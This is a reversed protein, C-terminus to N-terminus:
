RLPADSINRSIFKKLNDDVGRLSQKAKQLQEELRGKCLLITSADMTMFSIFTWNNSYMHANLISCLIWRYFYNLYFDVLHCYFLIVSLCEQITLFFIVVKWISHNIWQRSRILNVMLVFICSSLTSWSDKLSLITSCPLWIVFLWSFERWYERDRERGRKQEALFSVFQQFICVM